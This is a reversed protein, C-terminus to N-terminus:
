WLLSLGAALTDSDAGVPEQAQIGIYTVKVGLARNIPIGLSLECGLNKKTDDKRIGNLTSEAGIGGGVGASAWLGPRFTYVVHGQLTYWPDQELYNGNFFDDNDTYFWAAGTLETSWKGRSHVVGLQPRITFRNSGLNLLKDSQYDGTPMQLVLGVGVITEPDVSARYAAYQKGHLPPAGLLNIAFRLSADARGSRSTTAPAGNVLGSWKATQYSELVDLRASRGFLDFTRIYKFPLTHMEMTVDDLLLVPDFAIEADTYAYTASLSLGDTGFV